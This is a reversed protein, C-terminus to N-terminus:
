GLTEEKLVSTMTHPWACTNAEHPEAWVPRHVCCNRKGESGCCPRSRVHHTRRRREPSSTRGLALALAERAPIGVLGSSAGQKGGEGLFMDVSVTTGALELNKSVANRVPQHSQFCQTVALSDLHQLFCRATSLHGWLGHIGFLSPLSWQQCAM